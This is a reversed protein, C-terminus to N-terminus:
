FLGYLEKVFKENYFISGIHLVYDTTDPKKKVNFNLLKNGAM